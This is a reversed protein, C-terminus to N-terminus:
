VIKRSRGLNCVELDDEFAVGVKSDFRDGLGERARDTISGLHSGNDGTVTIEETVHPELSRHLTASGAGGEVGGFLKALRNGDFETTLLEVLEGVGPVANVVVQVAVGGGLTIGVLLHNIESITFGGGGDLAEEHRDKEPEATRGTVVQREDRQYQLACFCRAMDLVREPCPFVVQARTCFFHWISTPNKQRISSQLKGFFKLGANRPIDPLVELNRSGRLAMFYWLDHSFMDQSLAVGQPITIIKISKQTKCFIPLGCGLKTTDSHL